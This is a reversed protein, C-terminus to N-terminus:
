SARRPGEEGDRRPASRRVREIDAIVQRTLEVTARGELAADYFLRLAVLAERDIKKHRFIWHLGLAVWRVEAARGAEIKLAALDLASLAADYPHERATFDDCVEELLAIAEEKRGMGDRGKADLWKLRTLDLDNALEIALERAGPLLEAAEQFRELRCLLDVRNFRLVSLLRTDEAGELLPAAEELAALAAELNGMQELVNSRQLLIRGSAERDPGCRAQARDLCTLAIPFKHQARRLSAELSHLWWEPLLEPDTEAGAHWREWARAFARDAGDFDEGVRLANGYHGWCFGQTRARCTEEVRDAIYIAFKALDLAVDARDAAAKLSAKCVRAAVAWTRYVPWTDVLHRREKWGKDVLDAWAAEAEQRAQDARVRRAERIMLPRLAQLVGGAAGLCARDIRALQEQHLSVPSPVEAPPLHRLLPHLALLLDVAEPGHGIPEVLAVFADRSFPRGAEYKRLLSDDKHGLLAAHEPRSLGATERLYLLEKAGAPVEEEPEDKERRSM